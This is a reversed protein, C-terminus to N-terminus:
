LRRGVDVILRGFGSSDYWSWDTAQELYGHYDGHRILSAHDGMAKVYAAGGAESGSWFVLPKNIWRRVHLAVHDKIAQGDLHFGDPGLPQVSLAVALSADLHATEDGIAVYDKTFHMVVLPPMLPVARSIRAIWAAEAQTVFGAGDPQQLVAALVPVVAAVEAADALSSSWPESPTGRRETIWRQVTRRNLTAVGDGFLEKLAALVRSAPWTTTDALRQLEARVPAPYHSGSGM